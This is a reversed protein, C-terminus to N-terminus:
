SGIGGQAVLKQFSPVDQLRIRQDGTPLLQFRIRDEDHFCYRVLGADAFVTLIPRLLDSDMETGYDRSIRRGLLSLDALVPRQGFRSYLFQYAIRFDSLAPIRSSAGSPAGSSEGSPAGSEALGRPDNALVPGDNQLFPSMRDPQPRKEPQAHRIDRVQLTLREQGNYRNVELHFLIDVWEGANYDEEVGSLGFGIGEFDLFSGSERESQFRFRLHRGSGVPKMDTLRVHKLVFAPQRNAEGYPALAEIERASALTLDTADVEFDALIAPRLQSSDLFQRSYRNLALRFAEMQETTVTLGAAKPHGGYRVTHAAASTIAALLDFSGATRGSGKFLGKDGAFVIAPRQYQDALRAAVIGIVGSHWGEKAVVILEDESFSQSRDVEEVAENFIVAELTQREKNVLALEDALSAALDPNDTMLLDLARTADGMRGAANLRPALTYGITGATVPKGDLGSATLLARLGARPGSQIAAVGQAALIRNEGTLPVVDAITGIAALDILAREKGPCGMEFCLAQALKYAVGAGCLDPFPYTSGPLHPNLIALANPLEPPCTHHDTLITDLGLPSLSDIEEAASIGCDVTVLLTVGEQVANLVGSLSIGYGDAMRDPILSSVSAGLERLLRTLLATATLGDADYDGHVLIHEGSRVARALREAAIKMGPMRFPDHLREISCDLFDSRDQASVYGRAALVRDLLSGTRIQEALIKWDKRILLEM